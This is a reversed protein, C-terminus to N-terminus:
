VFYLINVLGYSIRWYLSGSYGGALYCAFQISKIPVRLGEHKEEIMDGRNSVLEIEKKKHQKVLQM